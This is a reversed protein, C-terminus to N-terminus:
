SDLFSIPRAMAGAKSLFWQLDSWRCFSIPIPMIHDGTAIGSLSRTMTAAGTPRVHARNYAAPTGQVILMRM